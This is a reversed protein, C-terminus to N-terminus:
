SRPPKAHEDLQALDDVLQLGLCEASGADLLKARLVHRFQRLMWWYSGELDSQRWLPRAQFPEVELGAVQELMRRLWRASGLLDVPAALAAARKAESGQPRVQAEFRVLEPPIAALRAPDRLKARLEAAKDYQRVMVAAKPSGYYVTRGEMTLLHDGATGVKVGLPGAVALCAAQVVDFAGPQASEFAIVDARSVSHGPFCDRLVTAAQPSADGQFSAHPREHRGGWWVQGLPGDPDVLRAGYGYGLPARDMREWAAGPTLGELADLVDAPVAPLTAAYADFRPEFFNDV